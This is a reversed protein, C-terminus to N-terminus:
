TIIFTFGGHGRCINKLCNSLHVWFIYGNIGGISAIFTKCNQTLVKIEVQFVM